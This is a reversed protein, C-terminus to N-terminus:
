KNNSKYYKCKINPLYDIFKDYKVIVTGTCGKVIDKKKIYNESILDDIKIELKTGKKPYTNHAKAYVRAAEVLKDEYKHYNDVDRKHSFGLLSLLSFIGVLLIVWIILLVKNKM